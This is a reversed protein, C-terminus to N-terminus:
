FYMVSISVTGSGLTVDLELNKVEVTQDDKLALELVVNLTM